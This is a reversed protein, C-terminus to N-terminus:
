ARRWRHILDHHIDGLSIIIDQIYMGSGIANGQSNPKLYLANAVLDTFEKWTIEGDILQDVHLLWRYQTEDTTMMDMVERLFDAREIGVEDRMCRYLFTVPQNLNFGAPRLM